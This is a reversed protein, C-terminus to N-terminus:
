CLMDFAKQKVCLINYRGNVWSLIKKFQCKAFKKHGHFKILQFRFFSHKLNFIRQNAILKLDAKKKHM